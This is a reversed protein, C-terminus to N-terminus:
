GACRELVRAHVPNCIEAVTRALWGEPLGDLPSPGPPGANSHGTGTLSAASQGAFAALRGRMPGLDQTRLVLTREPPLADLMKGTARAWHTLFRRAVDPLCARRAQPTTIEEWDFRGLLVEGYDRQWAPPAKGHKRLRDHVRLLERLYSEFWADPARVPLLFRTDDSLDVLVDGALHLFSAADMELASERDRRTMYARLAEHSLSGRHYDVLRRITETEAYENAARFNCFLTYLSVVGSRPLGVCVLHFRRAPITAVWPAAPPEETLGEFEERLGRPAARDERASEAVDACFRRGPGPRLARAARCLDLLAAYWLCTERRGAALYPVVRVLFEDSLGESWARKIRAWDAIEDHLDPALRDLATLRDLARASHEQDLGGLITGVEDAVRYTMAAALDAPIRSAAEKSWGAGLPLDSGFGNVYALIANAGDLAAEQAGGAVQVRLWLQVTHIRGIHMLDYGHVQELRTDSDMARHLRAEAAAPDGRRVDFYAWAQHLWLRALDDLEPDNAVDPLRAACAELARGAARQDDANSLRVADRVADRMAIYRALRDADLKDAVQAQLRQMFLEGTVGPGKRPSLTWGARAALMAHALRTTIPITKTIPGPETGPDAPSRDDRPATRGTSAAPVEHSFETSGHHASGDITTDWDIWVGEAGPSQHDLGAHCGRFRVTLDIPTGAEVRRAPIPAFCQEWVTPADLPGTRLVLDDALDAEFWLAWGHLTGPRIATTTVTGTVADELPGTQLDAGCVAVPRALLHRDTFSAIYLNHGVHAGLVDLRVGAVRAGDWCHVLAHAESDEVPAAFVRVRKPVVLGGPKLWQDRARKVAGIMAGGLGALGLCESVLVDVLRPLRVHDSEGQVVTVRVDNAAALARARAAIATREVGIVAGAGEQAAAVALVGTGAGLDVVFDGPRVARRVAEVFAGTRVRDALLHRHFGMVEGSGANLTPVFRVRGTAADPGETTLQM